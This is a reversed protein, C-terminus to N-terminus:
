LYRDRPCVKGNVNLHIPVDPLNDFKGDWATLIPDKNETVTQSKSYHLGAEKWNITLGCKGPLNPYISREKFKWAHYVHWMSWMGGTKGQKLFNNYWLTPLIGAVTPHFGSVESMNDYWKVYKIWNERSPSFGWTGLIPYMFVINEDPARLQGPGGGHKMSYGQLAFGNIYLLSDYKAHVNKLWKYFYKSVTLDDELIVAIEKSDLSPNWTKMWQGYIGAHQTQNHVNIIGHKFKFQRAKAYTEEHIVGDKSRDIWVDIAVKDGLYDAENLSNLLRLVSNGRNYTIVIVRLDLDFPTSLPLDIFRVSTKNTHHGQHVVPVNVQLTSKSGSDSTSLLNPRSPRNRTLNFINWDYDLLQLTVVVVILWIVVKSCRSWRM